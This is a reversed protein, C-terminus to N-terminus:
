RLRMVAASIPSSHLIAIRSSKRERGLIVHEARSRLPSDLSNLIPKLSLLKFRVYSKLWNLTRSLWSVHNFSFLKDKYVHTERGTLYREQLFIISGVHREFIPRPDADM